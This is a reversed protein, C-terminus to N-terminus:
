KRRGMLLEALSAFAPASCPYGFASIVKVWVGNHYAREVTLGSENPLSTEKINLTKYFPSDPFIISFKDYDILGQVIKPLKKVIDKQSVCKTINQIAQSLADWREQKKHVKRSPSLTLNM